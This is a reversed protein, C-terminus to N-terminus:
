YMRREGRDPAPHIIIPLETVESGRGEGPKPFTCEFIETKEPENM